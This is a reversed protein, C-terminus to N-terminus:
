EKNRRPKAQEASLVLHDYLHGNLATIANQMSEEDLFQVFCFGRFEGTNRDKAMHIRAIRGFGHVLDRVDEQDCHDPLNSIRIKWEDEQRRDNRRAPPVYATGEDSPLSVEHEGTKGTQKCERTWHNGSCIRCTIQKPNTSTEAACGNVLKRDTQGDKQKMVQIHIDDRTVSTVGESGETAALGFQRGKMRMQREIVSKPVVKLTRTIKVLQKRCYRKGDREFEDARVEYDINPNALDEEPQCSLMEDYEGWSIPCRIM